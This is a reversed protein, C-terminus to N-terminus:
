GNINDQTQEAESVKGSVMEEVHEESREIIGDIQSQVQEPPTGIRIKFRLTREIFSFWEKLANSLKEKNSYATHAIGAFVALGCIIVGYPTLIEYATSQPDEKLIGVVIIATYIFLCICAILLIDPIIVIIKSFQFRKNGNRRLVTEEHKLERNDM